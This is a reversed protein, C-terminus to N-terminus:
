LPKRNPRRRQLSTLSLGLLLLIARSPEPVLSLDYPIPSPNDGRITFRVTEDGGSGTRTGTLRGTLTWDLATLDESAHIYQTAFGNTTDYIGQSIGNTGPNVSGAQFLGGAQTLTPSSFLFDSFAFTSGALTARATLTLRTVSATPSTADLAASSLTGTPLITFGSGWKVATITSPATLPSMMFIYGQGARHELSFTFTRGSLQSVNGLHATVQSPVALNELRMDFNTNSLRYNANFASATGATNSSADNVLFVGGCAASTILSTALCISVGLLKRVIFSFHSTM